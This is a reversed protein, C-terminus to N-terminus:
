QTHRTTKQVTGTIGSAFKNMLDFFTRLLAKSMLCLMDQGHSFRCTCLFTDGFTRIVNEM